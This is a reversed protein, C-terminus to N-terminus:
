PQPPSVQNILLDSVAGAEFALPQTDDMQGKHIVIDASAEFDSITKPDRGDAFFAAGSFPSWSMWASNGATKYRWVPRWNEMRFSYRPRSPDPKLVPVADGKARAEVFTFWSGKQALTLEAARYALYKEIEARSTFKHGTVTLHLRNGKTQISFVGAAAPPVMSPNDSAQAPKTPQPATAPQDAAFGLSNASLLAVIGLLTGFQNKM